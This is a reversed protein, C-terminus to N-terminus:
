IHPVTTDHQRRLSRAGSSRHKFARLRLHLYGPHYPQNHIHGKTRNHSREKVYSSRSPGPMPSPTYLKPILTIPNIHLYHESCIYSVLSETNILDENKCPQYVLPSKISQMAKFSLSLPKSDQPVRYSGVACNYTQVLSLLALRM